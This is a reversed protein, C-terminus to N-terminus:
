VPNRIYCDSIHYSVSCHIPCHSPVIFISQFSKITLLQYTKNKESASKISSSYTLMMYGLLLTWYNEEAM